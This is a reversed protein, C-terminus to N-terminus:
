VTLLASTSLGWILENMKLTARIRRKTKHKFVSPCLHALLNLWSLIGHHVAFSEPSSSLRFGEVGAEPRKKRSDQKCQLKTNAVVSLMHAACFHTHTHAHTHTYKGSMWFITGPLWVPRIRPLIIFFAVDM